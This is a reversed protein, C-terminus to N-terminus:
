EGVTLAEFGKCFRRSRPLRMGKAFRKLVQPRLHHPRVRALAERRARGRVRRKTGRGSHRSGPPLRRLRAELSADSEGAVMGRVAAGDNRAGRTPVRRLGEPGTTGGRVSEGARGRHLLRADLRGCRLERGRPAVGEAGALVLELPFPVERAWQEVKKLMAPDPDVGVVCEVTPPYLPLNKGIGVGVELVRGRLGCLADRLLRRLGLAEPLAMFFDYLRAKLGFSDVGIRALERM